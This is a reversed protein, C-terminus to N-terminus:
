QPLALGSARHSGRLTAALRDSSWSAGSTSTCAGVTLGAHPASALLGLLVDDAETATM